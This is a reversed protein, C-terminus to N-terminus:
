FNRKSLSLYSSVVANWETGSSSPSTTSRMGALPSHSPTSDTGVLNPDNVPKGWNTAAWVWVGNTGVAAALQGGSPDFTICGARNSSSGFAFVQQETEWDWVKAVGSVDQSVVWRSDPSFTVAESEVSRADPTFLVTAM